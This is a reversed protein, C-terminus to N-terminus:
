NQLNHIRITLNHIRIIINHLRKKTIQIRTTIYTKNQTNQRVTNNQTKNTHLCTSYQQWRTDVWDCNVFIDYIMFKITQCLHPDPRRPHRM